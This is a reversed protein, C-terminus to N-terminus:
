FVIKKELKISIYNVHCTHTSLQTQSKTIRHVTAPWARRDMPNKLCSYQLPNGNGEGSSRESGLISSADEANDPPNVVSGGSFGQIPCYKCILAVSQLVPLVLILDSLLGNKGCFELTVVLLLPFGWKLSWVKMWLYTCVIFTWRSPLPLGSQYEQRFFGISLLAQYAVTWPTVFLQVCSLSKVKVKLCKLFGFM